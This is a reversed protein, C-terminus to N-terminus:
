KSPFQRWLITTLRPYLFLVLSWWCRPVIRRIPCGTTTLSSNFVRSILSSRKTIPSHWTGQRQFVFQLPEQHAIAGYVNLLKGKKINQFCIKLVYVIGSRKTNQFNMSIDVITINNQIGVNFINCTFLIYTCERCNYFRNTRTKSLPLFSLRYIKVQRNRPSHWFM